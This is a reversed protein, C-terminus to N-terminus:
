TDLNSWEILIDGTQIDMDKTTKGSPICNGLFMFQTSADVKLHLAIDRSTYQNPLEIYVVEGNKRRIRLSIPPDPTSQHTKKLHQLNEQYSEIAQITVKKRCIPCM